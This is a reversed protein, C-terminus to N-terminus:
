VSFNQCLYIWFNGLKAKSVKTRDPATSLPFHGYMKRLGSGRSKFIEKDSSQMETLKRAYEIFDTKTYLKIRM